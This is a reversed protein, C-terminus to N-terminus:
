LKIVPSKILGRYTYYLKNNYFQKATATSVPALFYCVLLSFSFYSLPMQPLFTAVFTLPLPLLLPFYHLKNLDSQAKNKVDGVSFFHWAGKILWVRETSEARGRPGSTAFSSGAACAGLVANLIGKVCGVTVDKNVDKLGTDSFSTRANIVLISDM